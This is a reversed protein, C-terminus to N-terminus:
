EHLRFDKVLRTSGFMSTSTHGHDSSSHSRSNLTWVASLMKTPQQHSSILLFWKEQASINAVTQQDSSNIMKHDWMTMPTWITEMGVRGVCDYEAAGPGDFCICIISRLLSIWYKVRREIPTQAVNLQSNAKVYNCFILKYINEM